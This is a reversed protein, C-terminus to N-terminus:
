RRARERSDNILRRTRPNENPDDFAKTNARLARWAVLVLILAGCSIAAVGAYITFSRVLLFFGWIIGVIIWAIVDVCAGGLMCVVASIARSEGKM